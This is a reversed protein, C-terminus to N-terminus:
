IGQEYMGLGKNQYHMSQFNKIAIPYKNNQFFSALGDDYIYLNISSIKEKALFGVKIFTSSGLQYSIRITDNTMNTEEQDNPIVIQEMTPKTDEEEKFQNTTTDKLEDEKVRDMTDQKHEEQINDMDNIQNYKHGFSALTENQSITTNPTQVLDVELTQDHIAYLDILPDNQIEHDFTTDQDFIPKDQIGHNPLHDQNSIPIIQISHNDQLVEQISKFIPDHSPSSQDQCSPSAIIDHKPSEKQCTDELKPLPTVHNEAISEINQCPFLPTEIALGKELNIPL